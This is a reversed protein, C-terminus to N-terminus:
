FRVALGVGIEWGSLAMGDSLGGRQFRSTALIHVNSSLRFEPTLGAGLLTLGSLDSATEQFYKAELLIGLTFRNNLRLRYQGSIETVDPNPREPANILVDSLSIKGDSRKRYRILFSLENYEFFRQYRISAVVKDGAQYVESGELEDVGYTSFVADASLSSADDLRFEAGGSIMREEGPDYENYGLLPRYPGMYQFAAGFGLVIQDTIPIAWVVAPSVNLGQGYRPVLFDFVEKSVLTDTEFEDQTLKRKGSPINLGLVLLINASEIHYSVGFQTDTFGNLQTVDGSTNALGGRLSFRLDRSFPYEVLIATGFQSLDTRDDDSWSRYVPLITLSGQRAEEPHSYQAVASASLGFLIPFLIHKM